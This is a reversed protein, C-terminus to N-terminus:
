ACPPRPRRRASWPCSHDIGGSGERGGRGGGEGQLQDAARQQKDVVATTSVSHVHNVKALSDAQRRADSDVMGGGPDLAVVLVTVQESKIIQNSHPLFESGGGGVTATGVYVQCGARGGKQGRSYIASGRKEKNPDTRIYWIICFYKNLSNELGYM